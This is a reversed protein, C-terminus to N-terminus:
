PKWLGNTADWTITVNFSSGTSTVPLGTVTDFIALLPSTSTTGTDKYVVLYTATGAPVSTFVTTAGAKYVGGTTSSWTLVQPTGLANASVASWFQDTAVTPTYSSTVLAVKITDTKLDVAASLGADSYSSLAQRYKVYLQNAADAPGAFAAAVTLVALLAFPRALRRM